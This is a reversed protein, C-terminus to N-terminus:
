LMATAVIRVYTRSHERPCLSCASYRKDSACICWLCTLPVSARRRAVCAMRRCSPQLGDGVDHQVWSECMPSTCPMHGEWRLTHCVMPACQAGPASGSLPANCLPAECNLVVRVCGEAWHAKSVVRRMVVRRRVLERGLTIMCACAFYICCPRMVHGGPFICARVDCTAAVRVHCCM